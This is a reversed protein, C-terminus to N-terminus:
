RRVIEEWAEDALEDFIPKIAPNIYDRGRVYGGNRTGHGYQLIMAINVGRNENTNYWSITCGDRSKEIEYTWSAATKGTDVPTAAALASVGAKGYKNLINDIKFDELYKLFSTTKNLDGKHHFQVIM